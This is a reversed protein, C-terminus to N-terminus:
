VRCVELDIPLGATGTTGDRGPLSDNKHGRCGSGFFPLREEDRWPQM